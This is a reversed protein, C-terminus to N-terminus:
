KIQHQHQRYITVTNGNNDRLMTNIKIDRSNKETIYKKQKSGHTQRDM